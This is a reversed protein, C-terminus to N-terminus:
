DRANSVGGCLRKWVRNNSDVQEKTSRTDDKSWLVPKYIACFADHPMPPPAVPQCWFAILFGICTPEIM